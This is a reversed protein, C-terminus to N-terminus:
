CGWFRYMEFYLITIIPIICGVTNLLMYINISKENKRSITLACSSIASVACIVVCIMQIVSTVIALPVSIEGMSKTYATFVVFFSATSVIRATNGAKTVFSGKFSIQRGHKKLKHGIRLIYIATVASLIYLTLLCLKVFYFRDYLMDTSPQRLGTSGGPYTKTSLLVAAEDGFESEYTIQYVNKDINEMNNLGKAPIANMYPIFKMIGRYTSRAPMYYGDLKVKENEESAYKDSSLEGFVITPAALLTNGNPENCLVVVGTKSELDFVMNAQGAWTAGSHGYTRVAYETCWFGHACMPIDSEGYFDTGTYMEDWTEPNKFLSPDKNALAQAYTMLDNLTGAAAGAPYAPIFKRTGELRIRIGFLMRYSKTKKHQEYVWENDSHTPNLATHEMKLPEFINEHVYECYDQGTVCEIVYGAVAAGYNSYATVEGPRHIQAPEIARIEEGLSLVANEDTKSIPYTNEQWGANHNMLNQMTIPEDYSLKQFFGDPLYERVDCDLDLRGQEYLQMASVWILTKSISGWEYVSDEGAPIDNEYDTKGFYGTYLVDSGQFIGVAASEGSDKKGDLSIKIEKLTNGSPLTMNEDLEGASVPFVTVATMMIGACLAATLKKFITKM